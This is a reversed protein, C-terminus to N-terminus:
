GSNCFQKWIYCNSWETQYDMCRGLIGYIEQAKLNENAM